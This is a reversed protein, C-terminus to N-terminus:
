KLREDMKRVPSGAYSKTFIPDICVKNVSKFECDFIV